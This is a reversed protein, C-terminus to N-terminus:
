SMGWVFSTMDHYGQLNGESDRLLTFYGTPFGFIHAQLPKCALLVGEPVTKVWELDVMDPIITVMNFKLEPLKDLDAEKPVKGYTKVRRVHLRFPEATFEKGTDSVITEGTLNIFNVGDKTTHITYNRSM